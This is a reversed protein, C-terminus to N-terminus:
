KLFENLINMAMKKKEQEESIKKDEFPKLLEMREDYSIKCYCLMKETSDYMIIDSLSNQGAFGPLCLFVGDTLTSKYFLGGVVDNMHSKEQKGKKFAAIMKDKLEEM